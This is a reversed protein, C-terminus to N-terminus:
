AQSGAVGETLCAVREEQGQERSSFNSDEIGEGEESEEEEEGRSLVEQVHAETRALSAFTGADSWFGSLPVVFCKGKQIYHRNVDSIELEGRESPELTRILDFVDPTYLYVGVVARNSPPDTPKEIVDVADGGSDFQLVGFRQPNEVVYSWLVAYSDYNCNKFNSVVSFFQDDFVNDGLIVLCGDTGVFTEALGLAQAIGGPEDQVSYSIKAGFASGSGLYKMIPSYNEGGCVVHIEDVGSALMARLPYELMPLQGVRLLHKNIVRTLPRLRTGEGGCLLVGKVNM